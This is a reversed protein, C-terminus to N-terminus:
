AHARELGGNFLLLIKLGEVTHGSEWGLLGKSRLVSLEEALSLNCELLKEIGEKLM